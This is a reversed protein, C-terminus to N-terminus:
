PDAERARRRKNGRAAMHLLALHDTDDFRHLQHVLDLGIRRALHDLAQNGIALRDLIPLRKERDPQALMQLPTRPILLTLPTLRLAAISDSLNVRMSRSVGGVREYFTEAHKTFYQNGIAAFDRQTNQIGAPFEADARDSHIALRVPVRQM